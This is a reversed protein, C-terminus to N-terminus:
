SLKVAAASPIVQPHDVETLSVTQWIQTSHSRLEAIPITGTVARASPMSDLFTKAADSDRWRELLFNLM